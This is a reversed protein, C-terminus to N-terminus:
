EVRINADKVVKGWKAIEAQVFAAFHQPTDGVGEFGMAALREKVDALALAKAVEAQLKNVIAPPTGGPLFLGNWGVIQYGKLGSEDLTPLDPLVPSRRVDTVALGRLKGSTVFPATSPINEVMFQIQGGALDALAPGGGKYPVHTAQIGAMSKLM